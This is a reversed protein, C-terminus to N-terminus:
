EGPGLTAMKRGKLLHVICNRIFESQRELIGDFQQHGSKMDEVLSAMEKRISSFDELHQVTVEQLASRLSAEFAETIEAVRQLNKASTDLAGSAVNLHGNADVLKLAAQETRNGVSQWGALVDEHVQKWSAHAEGFEAAIKPLQQSTARLERSTGQLEELIGDRIQGAVTDLLERIVTGINNRWQQEHHEINGLLKGYERKLNGEMEITHNRAEQGFRIGLNGASKEVETALLEPMQGVAARVETVAVQLERMRELMQRERNESAKETEEQIELIQKLHTEQQQRISELWDDRGSEVVAKLQAPLHNLTESADALRQASPELHAASKAVTIAYTKLDETATGASRSQAEVVDALREIHTGLNVVRDPFGQIAESFSQAFDTNMSERVQTLEQKITQTFAEQPLNSESVRYLTQHLDNSLATFKNEAKPLFILVIILNLIVGTLSGLLSVGMSQLIFLLDPSQLEGRSMRQMALNVCLALITGGLGLALAASALSRLRDDRYDFIRDVEAQYRIWDPSLGRAARRKIDTAFRNGLDRLAAGDDGQVLKRAKAFMLLQCVAVLLLVFLHVFDGTM